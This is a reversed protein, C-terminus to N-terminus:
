PKPPFIIETGNWKCDPVHTHLYALLKKSKNAAEGAKSLGVPVLEEPVYVIHRLRTEREHEPKETNIYEIREM